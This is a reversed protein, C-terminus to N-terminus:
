GLVEEFAAVAGCAQRFTLERFGAPEVPVAPERVTGDAPFGSGGAFRGRLYPSLLEAHGELWRLTTDQAAGPAAARLGAVLDALPATM